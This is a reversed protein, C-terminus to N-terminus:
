AAGQYQWYHDGVPKFGPNRILEAFLPGPPVRRLMNVASYLTKAHVTNQPTLGALSPFVEILLSSLPMQMSAARRAHADVATVVDTGVILLDDYGCPISRRVLEFQLRNDKVVALRVWERQPRRRDYGLMVIGQEPGPTLHIFGSVPIQNEKYWNSLGSVYRGDAVVWAPIEENTEDDILIFRQRASHDPNFIAMTKSNLPLTGAWRHPYSLPIVATGTVKVPPLGTWEDDLEQELAVQQPTLLARDFPIPRYELREPVSQVSEPEMRRLFWQPLDNPSVQDFRGDILMQRTLSFEQVEPDIGPDLELQPVIEAMTLPGGNAVELIAETLHLHGINVDAILSKVFWKNDINVFDDRDALSEKIKEAVSGGHERRINEADGAMQETLEVGNSINLPHPQHYDAAFERSKGKIDVTIVNFDGYDPNFGSRIGTVKGQALKLAPFVLEEGVNYARQPQYVTRGAMVRRLENAQERVRHRIVVEALALITQPKETELFFNYIQELDSDSLSFQSEWFEATQIQTQNM